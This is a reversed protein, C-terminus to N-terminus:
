AADNKVLWNTIDKASVVGVLHGSANVVIVHHSDESAMMAAAQAVTANEDLTMAVPMMVADASQAVLDATTPSGSRMYTDLQEVIDFKTIMGLPRRREDVVPLCGIRNQVMLAVVASIALDPLGCVVDSSMIQRLPVIGAITPSGRTWTPAPTELDLSQGCCEGDRQYVSYRRLFGNAM